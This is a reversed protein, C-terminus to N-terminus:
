YVFLYYAGGAIFIDAKGTAAKSCTVPSASLNLACKLASFFSAPYQSICVSVYFCGIFSVAGAKGSFQGRGKNCNVTFALTFLIMSLAEAPVCKEQCKM